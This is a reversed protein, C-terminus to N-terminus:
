TRQLVQTLFHPSRIACFKDLQFNCAKCAFSIGPSKYNCAKCRPKPDIVQTLPHEHSKHVIINPLFGCNVDLYFKCTECKYAFTNGLSFCGNCNYYDKDKSTDVLDLSHDLHLQHELTLPLEACYKHLTFSCGHKCSYYQLSLPRVCGHCVEIRDGCSISPM